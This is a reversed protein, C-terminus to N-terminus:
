VFASRMPNLLAPHLFFFNINLGDVIELRINIAIIFPPKPKAIFPSEM